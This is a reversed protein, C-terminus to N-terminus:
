HLASYGGGAGGGGAPYGGSMMGKVAGTAAREIMQDRFGGTDGYGGGQAPPGAEVNGPASGIIVGGPEGGSQRSRREMIYRWVNLACLGGLAILCLITGIGACMAVPLIAAIGYFVIRQVPGRNEVFDTVRQLQPVMACCFSAELLMVIISILILLVGAVICSPSISIMSFIGMSFCLISAFIGLARPAYKMYWPGQESM